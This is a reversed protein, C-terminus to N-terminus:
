LRNFVIFSMDLVNGFLRNEERAYGRETNRYEGNKGNTLNFANVNYRIVAYAM